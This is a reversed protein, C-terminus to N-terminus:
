KIISILHTLNPSNSRRNIFFIRGKINEKELKSKLYKKLEKNYNFAIGTGGAKATLRIGESDGMTDGIHAVENIKINPFHNKIYLRILSFKENENKIGLKIKGTAKVEDYYRNPRADKNLFYDKIKVRLENESIIKKNHGDFGFELFNGIFGHIKDNSRQCQISYFTVSYGTSNIVLPIKHINLFDLFEDFGNIYVMHKTTYEIAQRLTLGKTLTGAIEFAEEMTIIGKTQKKFINDAEKFAKKDKYVRLIDSMTLQRVLTGNLDSFVLKIKKM